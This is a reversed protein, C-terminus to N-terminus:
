GPRRALVYLREVTEARAALPGRRYWEVDVLGAGEVLAVVEAPEHQVFALDVEADYWSGALRVGSGAHLALVLWGGPALPRVLAAVAEALESPALHVLSYWALVAGWGDASTPRMLRRLDGVEYRGDPHRERAVAVMAPSLDVGHAEVGHDALFATVHGPGSGVEVVPREGALWAARGLLWRELPLDELEDGLDDAYATAVADYSARVAADRAQPGDAVVQERDAGAPPVVEALADDPAGLLHRWRHDQERPRRPLQEVLPPQAEALAVLCAEVAERDEFAHLRETRSRLAGPPQAGRLLLVTLLARADDALDLVVSLRQV